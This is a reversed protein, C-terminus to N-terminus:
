YTSANINDVATLSVNSGPNGSCKGRLFDVNEFDPTIVVVSYFRFNAVFKTWIKPYIISVQKNRPLCHGSPGPNAVGCHCLPNQWHGRKGKRIHNFTAEM